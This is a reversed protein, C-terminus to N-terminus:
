RITREDYVMWVSFASANGALFRPLCSSIRFFVILLVDISALMLCSHSGLTGSTM